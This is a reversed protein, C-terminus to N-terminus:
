WTECRDQYLIEKVAERFQSISKQRAALMPASLEAVPWQFIQKSKMLHELLEESVKDAEEDIVPTPGTCPM